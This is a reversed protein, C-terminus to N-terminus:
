FFSYHYEGYRICVFDSLVMYLIITVNTLVSATCNYTCTCTFLDVFSAISITIIVISDYVEYASNNYIWDICPYSVM